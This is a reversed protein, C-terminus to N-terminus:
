LPLDFAWFGAGSFLLSLSIAFVLGYFFLSRKLIVPERSEIWFEALSIVCFLLAAGQTFLGIILLAGGFIEIAGFAKAWFVIPKFRITEFVRRWRSQERTLELYGLNLFLLGLAVRLVFPAVLQYTLLGPFLSLM